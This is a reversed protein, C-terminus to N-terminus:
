RGAALPERRDFYGRRHMARVLRQAVPGAAQAADGAHELVVVLALKPRDAPVYGAFWAHAARGAGTEATGTKGAIEVADLRVTGHATGRPDSVVRRLGERITALTAASLDPIPSPAPVRIPDDEPDRPEAASREDDLTRLGLGRVAHPTVLMGGNAVAAM